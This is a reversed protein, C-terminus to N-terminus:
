VPYGLGPFTRLTEALQEAVRGDDGLLRLYVVAGAAVAVAADHAETSLSATIAQVDGSEKLMVARVLALGDAPSLERGLVDGM